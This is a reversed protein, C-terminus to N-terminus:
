ESPRLRAGCVRCFRDGAQARTGCAHCYVDDSRGLPLRTSGRHRTPRPSRGRSAQWFYFAGSGILVVGLAGLFYPLYNSIMVRGPTSADLPQSPQLGQEPATLAETSRVYHINLTFAQGPPLSNFSGELYSATQDTKAPQLAPDTTAGTADAPIRVSMALSDVQLDGPWEFTFDRSGGARTLPQYYEVRYTAPSQVQILISQYADDAGSELYDANLLSGDAGQMAVAMLNAENPFRIPVSAPLQTGPAVQLDYIVLMSPQDYEPWLQVQLSSLVIPSQAAVPLQIMVLMAGVITVAMRWRWM